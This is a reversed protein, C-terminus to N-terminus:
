FQESVGSGLFYSRRYSRLLFVEQYICLFEQLSFVQDVGATGQEAGLRGATLLQVVMVVASDTGTHRGIHLIQVFVEPRQADVALGLVVLHGRGLMLHGRHIGVSVGGAVVVLEGHLDHLLDGVLMVHHTQEMFLGKGADVAGALVVVPRQVGVGAFIEEFGALGGALVGLEQQKQRGKDLAHVLILVKEPCRHGEGAVVVTQARRLGRRSYHGNKKAVIQIGDHLGNDVTRLELLLAFAGKLDANVGHRGNRLVVGIPVSGRGHGEGAILELEPHKAGGLGDGAGINGQVGDHCLFQLLKGVLQFLGFVELRIQFLEDFLDKGVM